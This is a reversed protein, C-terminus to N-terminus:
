RSEARAPVKLAAFKEGISAALRTGAAPLLRNLAAIPTALGPAILARNKAVGDLIIAACKSAPMPTGPMASLLRARDIQRVTCTKSIPTDVMAPCVVTVRVGHAVGELRLSLSLGVVGYKSAAYPVGFPAPLLGSLSATNVIHGSKQAVMRPYAAMVGHMVGRLNTDIVDNWDEIELDAAEGVVTVGANNFVFDLRGHPAGVSRVADLVAERDRVDAVVTSVAGGHEERVDELGAANKDLATVRAGESRLAAVLARGIGSAGGTVLATKGEFVNHRPSM